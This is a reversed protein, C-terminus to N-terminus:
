LEISNIQGKLYQIIEKHKDEKVMFLYKELPTYSSGKKFQHSSFPLYESVSKCSTALDFSKSFIECARKSECNGTMQGYICSDGFSHHFGIINLKNIEFPTANLKIAELEERVLNKFVSKRM